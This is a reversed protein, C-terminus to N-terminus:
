IHPLPISSFISLSPLFNLSSLGDFISKRCFLFFVIKLGTFFYKLLIFCSSLSIAFDTLSNSFFFFINSLSLMVKSISILLMSSIVLIISSSYSFPTLNLSSIILIISFAFLSCSWLLSVMGDVGVSKLSLPKWLMLSLIHRIRSGAMRMPRMTM